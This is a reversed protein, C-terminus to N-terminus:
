AFWAEVELFNMQYENHLGQYKIILKFYKGEKLDSFVYM